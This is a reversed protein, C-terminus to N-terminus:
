NERTKVREVSEEAMDRMEDPGIMTQEGEQGAWFLEKVDIL